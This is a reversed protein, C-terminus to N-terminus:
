RLCARSRSSAQEFREREDHEDNENKELAPACRQNRQAGHRNRQDARKHQKRQESERDVRKRKETEHERDAQHDIVRDDNDFCDFTVDFFSHRRAVRRKLGHTFHGAGTMPMASTSEATKIGM